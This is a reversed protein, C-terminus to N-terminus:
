QKNHYNKKKTITFPSWRSSITRVCEKGVRREESRAVHVRPLEDKLTAIEDILRQSMSPKASVSGETDGDDDEDGDIDEDAENPVMYAQHHVRPQGDEGIVLFALAAAKQDETLVLDSSCVDSSWDSIRM